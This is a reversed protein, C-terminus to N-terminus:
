GRSGAEGPMRPYTPAEQSLARSPLTAALAIALSTGLRIISRPKPLM